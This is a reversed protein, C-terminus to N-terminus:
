VGETDTLIAQFSEKVGCKSGYRGSIEIKIGHNQLHSYVVCVQAGTLWKGHM